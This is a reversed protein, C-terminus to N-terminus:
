RVRRHVRGGARYWAVRGDGDRLFESRLGKFMGEPVFVCDPEYFALPSPPPPPRPSSDKRPFGGRPTEHEASLVILRSVTVGERHGRSGDWRAITM